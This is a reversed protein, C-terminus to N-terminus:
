PNKTASPIPTIASTPAVTPPNTIQSVQAQATATRPDKTSTPAKTPVHTAINVPITLKDGATLKNKDAIKNKALIADTTTFFRYALGALTDGTQITYSLDGRFTAPIDTATPLQMDPPPVLIVDGVQIIHNADFSNIALLVELSVNYKKAITSLYDGEQITYKFPGTPTATVTITPTLTATPAHTATSTPTVPTPTFTNTPTPTKTAFLAIGPRNPGTLWIVLILLGVVVLVVALGGIVFPGMQQRKRYSQIVNQASNKQSM